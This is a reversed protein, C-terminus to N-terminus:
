VLDELVLAIEREGQEGRVKLLLSTGPPDSRFRDRLLPLSTERASRGDVSLIAEGVALGAKDAPGGEIVDVVELVSDAKNVWM